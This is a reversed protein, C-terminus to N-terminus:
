KLLEKAAQRTVESIESGSLMQAIETVREDHSLQLAVTQTREEDTVQKKIFLHQDAKAAVQPLHTVALVQASEAIMQMKEAIAQAVRGSVGTDIEDFIVTMIGSKQTFITKLALMIRSMEGGSAIKALPKKPEGPNTTLYFEIKDKGNRDFDQEKFDVTFEARPMYLDNLQEQVAKELSSAIMKREKTLKKALYSLKEKVAKIEQSLDRQRTERNELQDIEIHIEKSREILQDVSLGYKRKLFTIEEIRAMVTDLRNEDYELEDLNTGIESALDQLEYFTNNLRKSWLEYNEGYDALDELHGAVQGLQTMISQDSDQLLFHSAALAQNITQFNALYNKEDELSSEEGANLDVAELEKAQHKLFDLKQLALHEDAQLAKNESVLSRYSEYEARYDSLLKTLNNNGFLDIMSLHNSSDMLSQHENQGHIDVLFAGIQKLLSITVVAGNVRCVNRGHHYIERQIILEKFEHDISNEDLLETLAKPYKEIQFEAELRCKQTGHRVYDASGRGGTILSVADIIISKGAGTEGTLVTMGSAFQVSIDEIIAFNQIHLAKLM